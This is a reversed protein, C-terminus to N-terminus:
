VHYKYIIHKKNQLKLKSLILGEGPKISIIRLNIPEKM